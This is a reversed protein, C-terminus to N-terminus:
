PSKREPTLPTMTATEYVFQGYRANGPPPELSVTGHAPLRLAFSKVGTCLGTEDYQALLYTADIPADTNNRIEGAPGTAPLFTCAGEWLAEGLLAEVSGSVHLIGHGYYDDRGEAGRDEAAGAFLDRLETPTLTEDIGLLVAAAGSVQPVAFSTGTRLSYGGSADLSRVDIGPATLFVGANHNSRSSVTGNQDVAGVGIVTDYSAPYYVATGGSNGVASVLLVNKTEAYAVAEKLSEFEGTM